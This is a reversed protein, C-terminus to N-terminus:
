MNACTHHPPGLSSAPDVPLLPQWTRNVEHQHLLSLTDGGGVCAIIYNATHVPRLHCCGTLVPHSDASLGEGLVTQGPKPNAPPCM